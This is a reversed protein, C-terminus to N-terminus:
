TMLRYFISYFHLAAWFHVIRKRDTLVVYTPSLWLTIITDAQSPSENDSDNHWHNKKFSKANRQEFRWKKGLAANSQFHCKTPDPPVWFFISRIMLHVTSSNWHPLVTSSENKIQKKVLVTNSKIHNKGNCLAKFNKKYVCYKSNNKKFLHYIM